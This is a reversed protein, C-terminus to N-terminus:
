ELEPRGAATWATYWYSGVDTAAEGLIDELLDEARLTLAEYYRETYGTQGRRALSSIRILIEERFQRKGNETIGIQEEISRMLREDPENEEETIPDKVKNKNGEVDVRGELRHAGEIVLTSM